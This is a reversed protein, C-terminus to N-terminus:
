SGLPEKQSFSAPRTSVSVDRSYVTFESPQSIFASRERTTVTALADHCDHGGIRGHKSFLVAFGFLM